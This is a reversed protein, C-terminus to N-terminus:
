RRKCDGAPAGKAAANADRRSWTYAARGLLMSLEAAACPLACLIAATGEWLPFRVLVALIGLVGGALAGAVKPFRSQVRPLLFAGSLPCVMALLMEEPPCEMPSLPLGWEGAMGFGVLPLLVLGCPLFARALRERGLFALAAAAVACLVALVTGRALGGGLLAEGLHWLRLLASALFLPFLVRSSSCPLLAGVLSLLACFGVPILGEVTLCASFCLVLGAFFGM